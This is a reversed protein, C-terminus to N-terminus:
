RCRGALGGILTAWSEAMKDASFLARQFERGAAGMARARDRDSALELIAAACARDDGVPVLLGTRGPQVVEAVGGIDTSVVPRGLAMAELVVMPMAEHSSTLCVVDAAAILAQADLRPGLVRVVGDTAAAASRVRELESGGGAVIGHIRPDARHARSVASVFDEVRKEPRLGAVLAALFHDSHVGLEQRVEHVPRLTPTGTARVGNPIVRIRERVFGHAVLSPRQSEAVAVAADVRPALTTMLRRRHPRLPPLLAYDVHENAVHRAGTRRALLYGVGLASVSRTVVVDPRWSSTSLARGLGLVDARTRMRACVIAVGARRLEEFFPGKGDLTLVRVGFRREALAPVLISWQREAGGLKLNPCVFLVRTM